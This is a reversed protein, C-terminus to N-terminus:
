TEGLLLPDHDVPQPGEEGSAARHAPIAGASVYYGASHPVTKEAAEKNIQKLTVGAVELKV